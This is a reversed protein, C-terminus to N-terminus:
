ASEAQFLHRALLVIPALLVIALYRLPIVEYGFLFPFYSFFSVACVVVPVVFLRPVYFALLVSFVDAPFFFRDHMKPLVYPVILVSLTAWAILREGTLPARSKSGLVVCFFVMVAGWIMGAPYLIDYLDNPFWQYLTPANMALARYTDTQGLYIQLLEPLPRGVVWAPILTVGYVAPVLLFYKWPVIRRFLLILLFPALFMAQLKFSFALGFAILGLVNKKTLLFYLCAVLCSTYLMDTEGWFSGNLVVTPVFLVVLFAYLAISGAPYRLRVIRYAFYATVFDFCSPILKVAQLASLGATNAAVLLYQYLPTNNSFSSRLAWVGGNNRIFDYWASHFDRFDLTTFDLLSVRLAIALAIGGGLIFYDERPWASFRRSVM